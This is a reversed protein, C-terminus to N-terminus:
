GGSGLGLPGVGSEGVGVEEGLCLNNCLKAAQGMGVDGLHVVKTGM